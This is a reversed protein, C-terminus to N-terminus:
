QQEKKKAKKAAKTCDICKDTHFLDSTAIVREQSRCASCIITVVRKAGFGEAEGSRLSGPKITQNPYRKGLDTEADVLKSQKKAGRKQADRVTSASEKAQLTDVRTKTSSTRVVRQRPKEHKHSAGGNDQVELPKKVGRPM